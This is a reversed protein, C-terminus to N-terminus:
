SNSANFLLRQGTMSEDFIGKEYALHGNIITHTVKGQLSQGELPSWGCKYYLNEKNVVWKKDLDVVALDAFYGERLFGREKIRFCTAPAHCMKEVIKELSIEQRHYFSLMMNLPHQILPLGSPANLYLNQKEEWTHPAHDTAIIDLRDDLLGELLADQDEKSKIAPNCKILSGL